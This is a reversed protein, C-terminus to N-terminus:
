RGTGGGGCVLGVFPRRGHEEEKTKGVAAQVVLLYAVVPLEHYTVALEPGHARHRSRRTSYRSSRDASTWESSPATRRRRSDKSCRTSHASQTACTCRSRQRLSGLTPSARRKTQSPKARVAHPFLNRLEPLTVISTFMFLVVRHTQTAPELRIPPAVASM